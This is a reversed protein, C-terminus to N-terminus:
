GCINFQKLRSFLESYDIVKYHDGDTALEIMKELGERPGGEASSKVMYVEVPNVSAAESVQQIWSGNKLTDAIAKAKVYGTAVGDSVVVLIKKAVIRSPQDQIQNEFLEQALYFAAYMSTGGIADPFSAVAEKLSDRNGTIETLTTPLANFTGLGIQLADKSVDYTTSLDVVARRIM